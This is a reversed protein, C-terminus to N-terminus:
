ILCHGVLELLVHVYLTDEATSESSSIHVTHDILTLMRLGAMWNPIM